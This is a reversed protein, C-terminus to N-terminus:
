GAVSRCRVRRRCLAIAPRRRNAHRCRLPEPGNHREQVRNRADARFHTPPVSVNFRRQGLLAEVADQWCEDPVELLECLLRPREGVVSTLWDRLREVDDPYIPRSKPDLLRQLDAHLTTRRDRLERLRRNIEFQQEQVRDRAADFAPIAADIRERLVSPPAAASLGAITSILADIPSKEHLEWPAIALFPEAARMQQQLEARLREWECRITDAERELKAIAQQLEDRRRIVDSQQLRVEADVHAHRAGEAAAEATALQAEIQVITDHLQARTQELAAVQRQAAYEHLLATLLTYETHRDRM